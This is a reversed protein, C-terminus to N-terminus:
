SSIFSTIISIVAVGISLWALKISLNFNLSDEISALTKEYRALSDFCVTRARSVVKYNTDKIGLHALNNHSYLELDGIFGGDLEELTMCYNKHEERAIVLKAKLNKGLFGKSGALLSENSQNILKSNKVYEDVLVDVHIFNKKM